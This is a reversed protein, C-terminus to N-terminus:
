YGVQQLLESCTLAHFGFTAEKKDVQLSTYKPARVVKPTADLLSLPLNAQFFVKSMLEFYSIDNEGSLQYIGPQFHAMLRTLFTTVQLVSVPCLTMDNFAQVSEGREAQQIFKEILPFRSYLVKTLRIIATKNPIKALLRKEMNAKTKGYVSFPAYDADRAEFPHEGSFVQNTSLVIWHRTNLQEVLQLIGDCNIQQALEPSEECQVINSMGAFVIVTEFCHQRWPDCMTPHALDLCVSENHAQGSQAKGRARRSTALFVSADLTSMLAQALHSDAGIILHKVLSPNFERYETM